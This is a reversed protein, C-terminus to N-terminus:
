PCPGSSDMAAAGYSGTGCGNRGRVLYWCGDASGMACDSAQEDFPTDPLGSQACVAGGPYGSAHLMSLRGRVIDYTTEAGAVPDLSTWSVRIDFSGRTEVRLGGIESPLFASDFAYLERGFVPDRASLLVKSCSSALPTIDAPSSGPIGPNIDGVEYTGAETGDSQWLELGDIGDDAGFYLTAGVPAFDRPISGIDGPVIDKVLVTGAGSGDSKWLEYDGVYRQATFFLTGNLNTLFWPNSGNAGLAIDKVMVTGATTGDSKWLEAGDTATIANFFLTGNV